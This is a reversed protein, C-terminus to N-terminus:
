HEWTSENIAIANGVIAKTMGQEDLLIFSQDKIWCVTHQPTDIRYYIIYPTDQHQAISVTQFKSREENCHMAYDYDEKFLAESWCDPAQYLQEASRQWINSYRPDVFLQGKFDSTKSWLVNNSQSHSFQYLLKLSDPTLVRM